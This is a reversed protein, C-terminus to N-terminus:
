LIKSAITYFGVVALVLIIMKDINADDSCENIRKQSVPYQKVDKPSFGKPYENCIGDIVIRNGEKKVEFTSPSLNKFYTEYYELRSAM